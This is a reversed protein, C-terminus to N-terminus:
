ASRLRARALLIAESIPQVIVAHRTSGHCVENFIRMGRDAEVLTMDRKSVRKL